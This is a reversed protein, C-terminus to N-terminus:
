EDNRGEKKTRLVKELLTIEIIINSWDIMEAPTLKRMQALDKLIGKAERLDSLWTRVIKEAEELMEERKKSVSTLKHVLDEVEEKKGM